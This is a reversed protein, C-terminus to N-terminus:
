MDGYIAVSFEDPDVAVFSDTRLWTIRYSGVAKTAVGPACTGGAGSSRVGVPVAAYSASSMANTFTVTVDGTSNKTISAVNYGAALTYNGASQTILAWVKAASPHNHQRGPTVMKDTATATEMESQSALSTGAVAGNLTATTITPSTLTKNTLTDTTAKGVLTDTSDPLTVTTTGAIAAAKLTTDGSTAGNLKLKGDVFTQIGAWTNADAIAGVKIFVWAAAASASALINQAWATVVALVTSSQGFNIADTGPVPSGTTSVYWYGVTTTGGNVKILTGEVVDRPGNFDAARSWAGSDSVYIGNDISSAQNKVLVRSGSTTVGDITQEGSLTIAATTAVACPNKIASNVLLGALRDTQATTM